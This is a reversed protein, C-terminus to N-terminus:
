QRSPLPGMGDQLVRGHALGPWKHWRGLKNAASDREEDSPQLMKGGTCSANDLHVDGEVSSAAVGAAGVGFLGSWGYYMGSIYHERVGVPWHVELGNGFCGTDLRGEHLQGRRSGAARRPRRQDM